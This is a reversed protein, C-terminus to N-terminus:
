GRHLLITFASLLFTSSTMLKSSAATYPADKPYVENEHVKPMNKRWKNEDVEVVQSKDSNHPVFFNNFNVPRQPEEVPKPKNIEIKGSFIASQTLEPHMYAPDKLVEETVQFEPYQYYYNEDDYEEYDEEEASAESELKNNDLPEEVVVSPEDPIEASPSTSSTTSTADALDITVSTFVPKIVAESVAECRM